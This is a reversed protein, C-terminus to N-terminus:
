ILYHIFILIINVFFARLDLYYLLIFNMGGQSQIFCRDLLYQRALPSHDTRVVLCVHFVPRTTHISTRCIEMMEWCLPPHISTWRLPLPLPMSRRTSLSMLSGGARPHHEEHGGAGRSGSAGRSSSGRRPRYRGRAM